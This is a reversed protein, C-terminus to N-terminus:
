NFCLTFEDVEEEKKIEEFGQINIYEKKTARSMAVYKM